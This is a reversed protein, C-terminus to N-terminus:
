AEVPNNGPALASADKIYQAIKDVYGQNTYLGNPQRRPSGANYAAVADNLSPYKKVLQALKKCGYHLGTEPDCLGVLHEKYGLERAVAGMVQMLGFSTSQQVIETQISQGLSKAFVDPTVLWNKNWGPEYRCALPEFNSEARVIAYVLRWSIGFSSATSQILELLCPNIM